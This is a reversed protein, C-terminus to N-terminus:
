PVARRALTAAGVAAAAGLGVLRRRKALAWQLSRAKAEGDFPGHAGRDERDDLPEYLYDARGPDLVQRTQQADVNTRALYRDALGPVLKSGLIVAV